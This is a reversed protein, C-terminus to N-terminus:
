ATDKPMPLASRGHVHVSLEAAFTLGAFRGIRFGTRLGDTTAAETVYLRGCSGSLEWIRLRFCRGHDKELSPAQARPAGLGAKGRVGSVSICWLSVGCAQRDGPAPVPSLKV